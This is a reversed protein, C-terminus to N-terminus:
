KDPINQKLEEIFSPFWSFLLNWHEPRAYPVLTPSMTFLAQRAHLSYVALLSVPWAM